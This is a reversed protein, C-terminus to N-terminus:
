KAKPARESVRMCSTTGADLSHGNAASLALSAQQGWTRCQTEYVPRDRGGAMSPM